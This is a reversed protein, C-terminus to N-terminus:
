CAERKVGAQHTLAVGSHGEHAEESGGSSYQLRPPSQQFFNYAHTSKIIEHQRKSHSSNFWNKQFCM